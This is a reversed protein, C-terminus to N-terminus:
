ETGKDAIWIIEVGGNKHDLFRALTFLYDSLRNLYKIVFDPVEENDRLYVVLREARRCVCRAVHAQAGIVSAGPLIFNQLPPLQQTLRDIESELKEIKDDGLAKPLKQNSNSASALFSGITFLDNQVQSLLIEEESGMIKSRVVGIHSNLEDVTGYSEVRIHHKAVREGGILATKDDDGQKTYIKFGM